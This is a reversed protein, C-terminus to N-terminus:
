GQTGAAGQSKLAERKRRIFEDRIEDVREHTHQNYVCDKLAKSEARCKFWVGFGVRRECEKFAVSYADCKKWVEVEYQELVEREEKPTLM